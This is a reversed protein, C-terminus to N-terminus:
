KQLKKYNNKSIVMCKKYTSRILSVWNKDALTIRLRFIRNLRNRRKVKNPEIYKFFLEFAITHRKSGEIGSNNLVYMIDKTMGRIQNM